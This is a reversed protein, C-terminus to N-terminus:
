KAKHYLVSYCYDISPMCPDIAEEHVVRRGVGIIIKKATM